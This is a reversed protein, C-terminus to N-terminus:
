PGVRTALMADLIGGLHAVQVQCFGHQELLRQYEGPSRERGGMQVLMNLSQLLAVRAERKEEDLLTEVLLLGAGPKCSQAVRSLIEHVRDDPWDHIIQCLIYLDAPPLRDRFFDGAAFRVQGAQPGAPQFHAALEITEPLDFVTVQLHPNERILEQALAGMCGQESKELFALGACFDLLRETGCVSADVKNAIGAAKQPAEDKLLDFVKLKCATFLAKSTKFGNILELLRTPFPPLTECTRNGEAEATADRAVGAEAKDRLAPAPGGEDVDSLDEFTDVAPISGHKICQLDEPWPPDYLQMLQKCFHNLPFCVVNLFDGHVSEVLM